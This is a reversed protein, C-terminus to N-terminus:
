GRAGRPSIGHPEDNAMAIGNEPQPLSRSNPRRPHSTKATADAALSMLEDALWAYDSRAGRGHPKADLTTAGAVITPKPMYEATALDEAVLFGIAAIPLLTAFLKYRNPM